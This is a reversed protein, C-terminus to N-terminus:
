KLDQGFNSQQHHQNLQRQSKLIHIETQFHRTEDSIYKDCDECWM